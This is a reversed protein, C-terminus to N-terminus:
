RRCDTKAGFNNSGEFSSVFTSPHQKRSNRLPSDFAQSTSFMYENREIAFNDNKRDTTKWYESYDKSFNSGCIEDTKRRKKYYADCQSYKRMGNGM